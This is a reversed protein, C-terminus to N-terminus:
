RRRDIENLLEQTRRSRGDDGSQVIIVQPESKPQGGVVFPQQAGDM